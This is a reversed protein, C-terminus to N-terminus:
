ADGRRAGKRTHIPRGDARTIRVHGCEVGDPGRLARVQPLAKGTSDVGVVAVAPGDPGCVTRAGRIMRAFAQFAERSDRAPITGVGASVGETTVIEFRWVTRAGRIMRADPGFRCGAADTDDTRTGTLAAALVAATDKLTQLM